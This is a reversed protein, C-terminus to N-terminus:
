LKKKSSLKAAKKELRDFVKNLSDFARGFYKLFAETVAGETDVINKSEVLSGYKKFLDKTMRFSVGYGHTDNYMDAIAKPYTKNFSVAKKASKVKNM